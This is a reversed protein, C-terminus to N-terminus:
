KWADIERGMYQFLDQNTSAFISFLKSRISELNEHMRKDSSNIKKQLIETNFQDSVGLFDSVNNLERQPVELLEELIVIHLNLESTENKIARIYNIYKGRNIYDFPNVSSAYPRPEDSFIAEEIPRNELGNQVSFAYNSLARDVPNRLIMLFKCKDFVTTAHKISSPFEHYSTSKEMLFHCNANEFQTLYHAKDVTKKIFTKAEPFTKKLGSIEPHSVLLDHLLTSGCRQGGVILILEHDTLVNSSKTFLRTLM